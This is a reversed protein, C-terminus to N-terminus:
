AKRSSGGFGGSPSSSTFGPIGGLRQTWITVPTKSQSNAEAENSQASELVRAIEGQEATLAGNSAAAKKQLERLMATLSANEQKSIRLADIMHQFSLHFPVTVFDIETSESVSDPPTTVVKSTALSNWVKPQNFYGIEGRYARDSDPVTVYCAGAMPEVEVSVREVESEDWIRLHITKALPPNKRFATNWDIDWYAFLSHPDRAMLCLAQTGYSRPLDAAVGASGSARKHILPRSSIRYSGSDGPASEDGPGTQMAENPTLEPKM